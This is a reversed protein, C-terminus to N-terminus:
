EPAHCVAEINHGDPDIVFAGYYTPHYEPRLGPPGNDKAGAALAADHFEKVQLRSAAHFAIHMAPRIEGKEVLWFDPKGDAGLGAWGEYEMVIEYGIPSLAKTYFAKAKAIDSVSVGIHDIM